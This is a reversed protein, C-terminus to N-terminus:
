RGTSGFGGTGRATEDDRWAIVEPHAIPAFVLQAIRDGGRLVAAVHGLNMLCVCLPGRYDADVTGPSNIVVVGHKSALGSRSRIQAEWGPTYIALRVGTDILKTERSYLFFGENRPLYIDYGSSGPTACTPQISEPGLQWAIQPLSNM